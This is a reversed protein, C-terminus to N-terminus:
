SARAHDRKAAPLVANLLNAFREAAGNEGKPSPCFLTCDRVGQLAEFATWASSPPPFIVFGGMPHCRVVGGDVAWGITRRYHEVTEPKTRGKGHHEPSALCADGVM